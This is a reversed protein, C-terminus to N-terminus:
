QFASTDLLYGAKRKTLIANEYGLSGLKQKIRTVNVTLTNDDVFADMDWIAELLQDRSLVSDPQEFFVKLLKYENKSLDISTQKNSLRFAKGDLMLDNIALTQEKNPSYECSVRRLLANIKALLVPISFPKVVYEDAGLEMSFVQDMDSNRASTMIVPVTSEKRFLKLYYNGDYYPLNIDLLVLDPMVELFREKVKHFDTVEYVEYSYGSLVEMMQRLLQRDDEVILIKSM